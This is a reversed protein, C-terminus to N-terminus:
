NKYMSNFAQLVYVESHYVNRLDPIMVYSTMFMDTSGYESYKWCQRWHQASDVLINTLQFTLAPQRFERRIGNFCLFYCVTFVRWYLM